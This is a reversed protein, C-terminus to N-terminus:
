SGNYEYEDCLVQAKLQQASIEGEHIIFFCSFIEGTGRSSVHLSGANALGFLLYHCGRPKPNSSRSQHRM